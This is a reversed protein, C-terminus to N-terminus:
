QREKQVRPRQGVVAAQAVTKHREVWTDIDSRKFRRAGAVKFGPLNTERTRQYVTKEDVQLLPAVEKVNLAQEM